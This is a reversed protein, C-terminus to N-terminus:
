DTYSRRARVVVQPKAVEVKIKHTSGEQREGDPYFGLRYQHRLEDAILAFNMKLDSVEGEYFRGASVNSLEQLFEQANQNQQQRRQPRQNRDPFQPSLFQQNMLPFRRNGGGRRTIPPFPRRDRMRFNPQNTAYFISYVMADSEAAADMLEDTTVNSGHDKGDTLLIIAKRGSVNKFHKDFVEFVADRLTTGVYEGIGARKIGQELEKRNSTLATLVHVDYDFTVILARDQPKLQKLFDKARDKIEDLVDTTSRSTDLLLAINLPEEETAFFAISQRAGDKYLTFDEVKLGGIYRGNRDSVIVPVSVLTSGLKIPADPESQSQAQASFIFVPFFLLLNLAFLIRKAFTM